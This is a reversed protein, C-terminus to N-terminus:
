TLEAVFLYALFSALNAPNSILFPFQLKVIFSLFYDVTSLYTYTKKVARSQQSRSDAKRLSLISMKRLHTKILNMNIQGHEWSRCLLTLHINVASVAATRCLVYSAVATCM